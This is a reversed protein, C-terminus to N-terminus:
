ARRRRIEESIAPIVDHLDAIVAWDAKVVMNAERDTNIALSLLHVLNEPSPFRRGGGDFDADAIAAAMVEKQDDRALISFNNEFGLAPAYRRLTRYALSHFTGARVKKAAPGLLTEIREFVEERHIAVRPPADIGIKVQGGSVELVTLRVEPGIRVSEGSRRTLVLM